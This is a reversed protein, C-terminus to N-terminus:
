SAPGLATSELYNVVGEPSPNLLDLCADIEETSLPAPGTKLIAKLTSISLKGTKSPDFVEFAKLVEPSAVSQGGLGAVVESLVRFSLAGGEKALIEKVTEEEVVFGLCRLVSGLHAEDVCETEQSMFVNFVEQLGEM